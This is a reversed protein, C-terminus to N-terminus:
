KTLYHSFMTKVNEVDEPTVCNALYLAILTERNPIAMGLILILAGLLCMGGHIVKWKGHTCVHTFKLGFWIVMIFGINVLFLSIQESQMILFITINTSTM